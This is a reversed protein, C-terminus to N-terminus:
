QSETTSYQEHHSGNYLSIDFARFTGVISSLSGHHLASVASRHLFSEPTKGLPLKRQGINGREYLNVRKRFILPASQISVENCQKGLSSEMNKKGNVLRLFLDPLHDFACCKSRCGVEKPFFLPPVHRKKERM